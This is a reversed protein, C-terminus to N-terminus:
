KLIAGHPSKAAELDFLTLIQRLGGGGGVRETSTQPSLPSRHCLSLVVAPFQSVGAATASSHSVSM